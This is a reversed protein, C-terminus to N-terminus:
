VAAEGPTWPAPAPEWRDAVRFLRFLGLSAGAYGADAVGGVVGAQAGAACGRPRRERGRSGELARKPAATLTERTVPERSGDRLEITGGVAAVRRRLHRVPMSLVRQVGEDADRLRCGPAGDLHDDGCLRLLRDAAPLRGVRARLRGRQPDRRRLARPQLGARACARGGRLGAAVPGFLCGRRDRNGCRRGSARDDPRGLVREPIQTQLPRGNWSTWRTRPSGWRWSSPSLRRRWGAWTCLPRSPLRRDRRLEPALGHVAPAAAHRLRALRGARARLVGAAGRDRAGAGSSPAAASASADPRRRGRLRVRAMTTWCALCRGASTSTASAAPRPPRGRALGPLDRLGLLPLGVTRGLSGLRRTADPGTPRRFRALSRHRGAASRPRARASGAPLDNWTVSCTPRRESGGVFGDEFPLEEASAEVLRVRQTEAALVVRRRAEGWTKPARTSASSRAARRGSSSLSSPRRAAPWTSCPTTPASPCARSSFVDGARPRGSGSCTRTATTPRGSRPSCAALSSRAPAACAASDLSAAHLQLLVQPTDGFSAARWAASPSSTAPITGVSGALPIRARRRRRRSRPRSGAPENEVRGADHDAVALENAIRDRDRREALHRLLRGADLGVRRPHRARLEEVIEPCHPRDRFTASAILPAAPM